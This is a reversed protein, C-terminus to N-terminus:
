LIAIRNVSTRRPEGRSNVTRREASESFTRSTDAPYGGLHSLFRAIGRYKRIIFKVNPSRAFCHDDFKDSAGRVHREIAM